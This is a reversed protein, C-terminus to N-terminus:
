AGRVAALIVDPKDTIICDVELRRLEAAREPENVTWTNVRYGADKAWAMYRADIESFHPNRAEHPLGIMLHPIFFPIDEAHLYGIPM